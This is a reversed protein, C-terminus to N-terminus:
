LDRRRHRGGAALRVDSGHNAARCRVEHAPGHHDTNEFRHFSAELGEVRDSVDIRDRIKTALAVDCKAMAPDHMASWRAGVAQAYELHREAQSRLDGTEEFGYIVHVGRASAMDVIARCSPGDAAEAQAMRLGDTGFNYNGLDMGSFSPWDVENFPNPLGLVDRVYNTKRDGMGRFENEHSASVLVENTMTPSLTHVWTFGVTQNPRITHETGSVGNLMPQGDYNSLGDYTNYSYRGYLLDRDSIHQDIRISTNSGNTYAAFPGIWNSGILPNIQPQDLRRM